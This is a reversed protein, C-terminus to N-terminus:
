GTGHPSSLTTSRYSKSDPTPQDSRRYHGPCSALLLLRLNRQRPQQHEVRYTHLSRIHESPPIGVTRPYSETRNNSSITFRPLLRAGLSCRKHHLQIAPLCKSLYNATRPPLLCLPLSQYNAVSATTTPMPESSANQDLSYKTSSVHSLQHIEHQSLRQSSSFAEKLRHSCSNVSSM